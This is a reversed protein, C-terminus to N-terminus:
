PAHHYGWALESSLLAFRACPSPIVKGPPDLSQRGARREGTM